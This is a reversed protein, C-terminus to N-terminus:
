YPFIKTEEFLFILIIFPYLMVFFLKRASIVKLLTICYVIHIIYLCWLVGNQYM